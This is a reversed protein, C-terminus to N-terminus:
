KPRKSFIALAKKLIDREEKVDNLEKRLRRVEEDEPKLHGKGPFARGRDKLYQQRWKRLVNKHIDLDRALESVKRGGEVMVRATEMKFEADFKRRIGSM